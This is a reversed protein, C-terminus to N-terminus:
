KNPKPDLKEPIGSRRYTVPSQDLGLGRIHIMIQYVGWALLIGLVAGGLIDGPFHVGLYVRSYAILGAWLHIGAWYWWRRVWLATFFAIAFHNSAHNSVFGYRGGCYDNVLHVMGALHSQHCPRLREFTEKFLHVCAQDSMTVLVLSGLLIWLAKWRFTYVLYGLIIVYLPIWNLKGSVWWMVSDWFPSHMGNLFLFLQTDWNNLTELM